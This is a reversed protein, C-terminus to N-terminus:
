YISHYYMQIKKNGTHLWGEEDTVSAESGDYGLMVTPSKIYLEGPIDPGVKKGTVYDVVQLM